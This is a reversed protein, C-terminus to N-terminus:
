LDQDTMTRRGTLWQQLRRGAGAAAGQLADVDDRTPMWLSRGTIGLTRIAARTM